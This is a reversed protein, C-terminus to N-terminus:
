EIVEDASVLLSSPISLGLRRATQRSVTLEFTTPLEVPLDSPRAGRLIKDVYAAGRRFHHCYNLGYSILGGAQVFERIQFASPMRRSTAFDAIKRRSAFTIGEQLAILADCKLRDIAPFAKEFDEGARVEVPDIRLSVRDAANQLEQVELVKGANTPNYLVCVRSTTPAALKLFELLKATTAPLFNSVGTLDGGPAALSKVFGSEVPDSVGIFVVPIDKIARQVARTGPTSNVVVVDPRSRAFENAFATFRDPLGDSWRVELKMSTGGIWGHERLGAIFCDVLAAGSEKSVGSIYGVTPMKSPQALAPLPLMTLAGSAIGLFERRRM